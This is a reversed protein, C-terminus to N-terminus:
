PFCRTASHSSLRSWGIQILQTGELWGLAEKSFVLNEPTPAPPIAAPGRLLLTLPCWLLFAVVMVTMIQM